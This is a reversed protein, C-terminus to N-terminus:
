QANNTKDIQKVVAYAEQGPPVQQVSVTVTGVEQKKNERIQRQTEKKRTHRQNRNQKM